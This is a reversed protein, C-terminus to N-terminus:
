VALSVTVNQGFTARRYKPGNGAFRKSSTISVKTNKLALRAKWFVGSVITWRIPIRLNYHGNHAPFSALFRFKYGNKPPVHQTRHYQSWFTQTGFDKICGESYKRSLIRCKNPHWLRRASLSCRSNHRDMGDGHGASSNQHGGFTCM